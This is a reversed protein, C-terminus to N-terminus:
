ATVSKKSKISCGLAAYATALSSSSYNRKEERFANIRDPRHTFLFFVTWWNGGLSYMDCPFYKKQYVWRLKAFLKVGSKRQDSWYEHYYLSFGVSVSFIARRFFTDFAVYAEKGKWPLSTTNSVSSTSGQLCFTKNQDTLQLPLTTM